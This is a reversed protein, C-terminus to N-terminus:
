FAQSSGFTFVAERAGDRTPSIPWAVDFRVVPGLASRPTAFRIGFGAAQFWGTGVAGPGWARATDYFVAAGLSVLDWRNRVLVWRQEANLRVLERGALAQVPYARLGNLGGVVVQFDRAVDSGGLGFAALVLARGPRPALYWRADLRRIVELPGHRLRMSINGRAYGFGLGNVGGGDAALRVFGENASSGFAEPSLGVKAGVQWGVDLDEKRGMRELDERVIFNPRWLSVEAGLRRLDL